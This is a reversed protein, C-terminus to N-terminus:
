RVPARPCPPPAAQPCGVWPPRATSPPGQGEAACRLRPGHRLDLHPAAAAPGLRDLREPLVPAGDHRDRVAERAGLLLLPDGPHDRPEVAGLPPPAGRVGLEGGAGLPERRAVELSPRPRLTDRPHAVLGGAPARAGWDSSCVDSSWDR